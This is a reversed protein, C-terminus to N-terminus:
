MRATGPGQRCSQQDGETLEALLQLVNANSYDNEVIMRNRKGMSERLAPDDALRAIAAALGTVDNEDVLIDPVLEPIGTHRTAVIPKRYAMAEMLAVPLGEGVGDKDFRSPM